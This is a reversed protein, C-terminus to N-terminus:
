NSGYNGNFECTKVGCFKKCLGSKKEPWKNGKFAKDYAAVRKEYKAWDEEFFERYVRGKTAYGEKLWEYRTNVLKLEPHHLFLLLASHKLQTSFPDAKGTKWDISTAETCDANLHLIDLKARTYCDADWWGCPTLDRRVALQREAYFSGGFARLGDIVEIMQKRYPNTDPIPDGKTAYDEAQKHWLDGDDAAKNYPRAFEKSLKEGYHKRACTEFSTLSSYSYPFIKIPKTEM